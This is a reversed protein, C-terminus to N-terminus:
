ILWILKRRTSSPICKQPALPIKSSYQVRFAVPISPFHLFIQLFHLFINGKCFSCFHCSKQDPLLSASTIIFSQDLFNHTCVYNQDLFNHPCVQFMARFCQEDTTLSYPFYNSLFPPPLVLCFLIKIDWFWKVSCCHHFHTMQESHSLSM